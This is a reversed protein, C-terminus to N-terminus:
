TVVMRCKKQQYTKIYEQTTMNHSQAGGWDPRWLLLGNEGRSVRDTTLKWYYDSGVLLDVEMVSNGDSSEALRSESLHKPWQLKIEQKEDGERM